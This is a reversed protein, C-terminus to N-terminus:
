ISALTSYSRKRKEIQVWEGRCINFASRREIEVLPLHEVPFSSLRIYEPYKVNRNEKETNPYCKEIM